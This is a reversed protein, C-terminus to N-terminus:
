GVAQWPSPKLWTSQTIHWLILRRSDVSLSHLISHLLVNRQNRIFKFINYMCWSSHHMEEWEGELTLSCLLGLTCSSHICLNLAPSFYLLKLTPRICNVIYLQVHTLTFNNLYKTCVDLSNFQFKIYQYGNVTFNNNHMHWFIGSLEM